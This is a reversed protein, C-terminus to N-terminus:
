DGLYETKIVGSLECLDSPKGTLKCITSNGAASEKNYEGQHKKLRRVAIDATM